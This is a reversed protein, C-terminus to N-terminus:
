MTVMSKGISNTLQVNCARATASHTFQVILLRSDRHINYVLLPIYFSFIRNMGDILETLVVNKLQSFVVHDSCHNM